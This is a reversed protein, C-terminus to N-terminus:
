VCRSTAVVRLGSLQAVGRPSAQPVAVCRSPGAAAATVLCFLLGHEPIGEASFSEGASVDEADDVCDAIRVWARTDNRVTVSVQRFLGVIVFGIVVVVALAALIGGIFGIWEGLGHVPKFWSPRKLRM